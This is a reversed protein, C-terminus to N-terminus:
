DTRGAGDWECPLLRGVADDAGEQLGRAAAEALESGFRDLSALIVTAEIACRVSFMAASANWMQGLRARMAKM